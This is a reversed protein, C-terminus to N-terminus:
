SVIQNLPSHLPQNIVSNPTHAYPPQYYSTTISTLGNIRNKLLKGRCTIKIIPWCYRYAYVFIIVFVVASVIIQIPLVYHTWSSSTFTKHEALVQQLENHNNDYKTEFQANVKDGCFLANTCSVM